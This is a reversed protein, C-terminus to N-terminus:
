LKSVRRGDSLLELKDNEVIELELEGELGLKLRWRALRFYECGRRWLSDDLLCGARREAVKQRGGLLALLLLSANLLFGVASRKLLLLFSLSRGLTVLLRGSPIKQVVQDALISRKCTCVDAEAVVLILGISTWQGDVDGAEVLPSDIVATDATDLALASTNDSSWRVPDALKGDLEEVDGLWLIRSVIVHWLTQVGADALELLRFLDLVLGVFAMETLLTTVARVPTTAEEAEIACLQSREV